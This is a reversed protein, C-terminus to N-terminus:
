RWAAPKHEAKALEFLVVFLASMRMCSVTVASIAYGVGFWILTLWYWHWSHIDGLTAQSAGIIAACLWLSAKIRTMKIKNEAQEVTEPMRYAM